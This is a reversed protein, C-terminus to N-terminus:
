EVYEEWSPIIGKVRNRSPHFTYSDTPPPSIRGGKLDGSGYSSFVHFKTHSLDVIFEIKDIEPLRSDNDELDFSTM